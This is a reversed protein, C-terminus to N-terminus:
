QRRPCNRLTDQSAVSMAFQQNVLEIVRDRAIMIEAMEGHDITKGVTMIELVIMVDQYIMAERATM